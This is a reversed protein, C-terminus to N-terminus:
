QKLLTICDLDIIEKQFITIKKLNRKKRINIEIHIIFQLNAEILQIIRPKGLKPGKGKKLM